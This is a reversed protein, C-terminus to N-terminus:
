CPTARNELQSEPRCPACGSGRAEHARGGPSRRHAAGVVGVRYEGSAPGTASSGAGSAVLSLPRGVRRSEAVAWSVASWNAATGDVGVVVKVTPSGETTSQELVTESHGNM